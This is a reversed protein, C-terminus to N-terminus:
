VVGIFVDVSLGFVGIFVDVSQCFLVFLFM